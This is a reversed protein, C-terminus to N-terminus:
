NEAFINLSEFLRSIISRNNTLIEATGDLQPQTPLTLGTSTVLQASNLSINMSYLSDMALGSILSVRGQIVGFEQYPYSKLKIIVKQGTKIKGSKNIGVEARVQYREHNPVIMMIGKGAEVVQNEKWYRFFSVQGQASTKIVFHDEWQEFMGIFKRCAVKVERWLRSEENVNQERLEIMKRSLESQQLDTQTISNLNSESTLKQDLLKKQTEQLEVLSIVRESKLQSDLLYRQRNIELQESIIKQKRTLQEGLTNYQTQQQSLLKHKQEFQSHQTFFIYRDLAEQLEVYSSQLEGLNLLVTAVPKVQGLNATTDIEKALSLAIYAESLNVSNELVCLVEGSKVNEGNHVMLRQIPLSYRAVIKVPPNSYVISVNATIADPYSIVFSAVILSLILTSLVILGKSAIWSPVEGIVEDLEESNKDIGVEDYIVTTTSDKVPKYNEHPQIM